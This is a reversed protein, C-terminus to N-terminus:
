PVVPQVWAAEMDGKQYPNPHPRSSIVKARVYLEKGTLRLTRM